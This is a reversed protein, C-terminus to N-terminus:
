DGVNRGDLQVLNLHFIARLIILPRMYTEVLYIHPYDASQKASSLKVYMKVDYGSEGRM